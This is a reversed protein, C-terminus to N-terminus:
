TRFPSEPEASAEIEALQALISDPVQLAEALAVAARRKVPEVVDVFGHEKAEAATMYTEGDLLARVEAEDLGTRAQYTEVLAHEVKALDEAAKSLTASDGAVVMWPNHVMIMANAPMRIEDGALAIISAASAAIGDISIVVKAPHSSLFNFIALAHDVEGGRSNITIDIQEADAPIQSVLERDTYGWEGILGRISVSVRKESEARVNFWPQPM